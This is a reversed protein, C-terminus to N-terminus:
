AHIKRFQKELTTMDRDAGITIKWPNLLSDRPRAPPLYKSNRFRLSPLESATTSEAPDCGVSVKVGLPIPEDEGTAVVKADHEGLELAFKRAWESRSSSIEQIIKEDKYGSTRQRAQEDLVGNMVKSRLRLIRKGYEPALMEEMGRYCWQSPDVKAVDGRSRRLAREMARRNREMEAFDSFWLWYARKEEESIVHSDVWVKPEGEQFRVRRTSLAAVMKIGVSLHDRTAHVSGFQSDEAQITSVTTNTKHAHNQILRSPLDHDHLSSEGSIQQSTIVNRSFHLFFEM